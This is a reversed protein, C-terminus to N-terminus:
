AKKRFWNKTTGFKTRIVIGWGLLSLFFSIMFGLLPIFGLVTVVLFGILVALFPSSAPKGLARSLSDGFFHYLIVQGFVKIVIGLIILVFLLPLGILLLSLLAAAIVMGIFVMIALLGIGLVPGFDKRIRDSAFQIQGPLLATLVLALLLWIFSAILKFLLYVPFFSLNFSGSLAKFFDTSSHFYITDGQIYSGPEKVLEGGLAVVDGRIISTEKLLIESGMCFLMQSIEGEVTVTGGFVVVDETVKGKILVNGGFSIVNEQTSGSEVVVDRQVSVPDHTGGSLLVPVIILLATILLLTIRNM